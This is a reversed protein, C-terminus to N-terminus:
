ENITFKSKVYLFNIISILTNIAGLCVGMACSTALYYAWVSGFALTFWFTLCAECNFPKVRFLPGWPVTALTALMSSKLANSILIAAIAIM